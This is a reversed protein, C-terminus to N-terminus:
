NGGVMSLIRKYIGRGNRRKYERIRFYGMGVVFGERSIRQLWVISFTQQGEQVAKSKSLFMCKHVRDISIM